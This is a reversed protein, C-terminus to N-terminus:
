QTARKFVNEQRHPRRLVRQERCENRREPQNQTKHKQSFSCIERHSSNNGEAGYQDLPNLSKSIQKTSNMEQACAKKLAQYGCERKSM